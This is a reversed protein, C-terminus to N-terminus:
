TKSRTSKVFELANRALAVWEHERGNMAIWEKMLRGHGPDFHEGIGTAVLNDVSAKPLKAVFQGKVFMAFIKGNIALVNNSSFMKKQTVGKEHAFESVVAAFALPVATEKLSSQSKPKKRTTVM